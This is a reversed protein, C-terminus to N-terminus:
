TGQSDIIVDGLWDFRVGLRLQVINKKKHCSNEPTARQPQWAMRCTTTLLVLSATSVSWPSEQSRRFSNRPRWLHSQHFVGFSNMIELFASPMCTHVGNNHDNNINYKNKDTYFQLMICNIYCSAVDGGFLLYGSMAYISWIESYKNHLYCRTPPKLGGSFYSDSQIMMGVIPSFHEM